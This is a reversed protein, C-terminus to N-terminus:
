IKSWNKIKMTEVHPQTSFLFQIFENIQGQLLDVDIYERQHDLIKQSRKQNLLHNELRAVYNVLM